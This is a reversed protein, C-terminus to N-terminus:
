VPLLFDGCSSRLKTPLSINHPFKPMAKADIANPPQIPKLWLFPPFLDSAFCTNIIRNSVAHDIKRNEQIVISQHQYNSMGKSFYFYTYLIPIFFQNFPTRLFVKSKFNMQLHSSFSLRLCRLRHAATWWGASRPMDQAM